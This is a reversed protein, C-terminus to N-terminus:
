ECVPTFDYSEIRILKSILFPPIEDTQAYVYASDGYAKYSFIEFMGEEYTYALTASDEGFFDFSAPYGFISDNVITDFQYCFSDTEGSTWNWNGEWDLDYFGIWVEAGEYVGEKMNSIFDNETESTISVLHGGFDRSMEDADYWSTVSTSLYYYSGGLSDVSVFHSELVPDNLLSDIEMIFPREEDCAIDNWEGAQWMEACDEGDNSNNPEEEAWNTFGVYIEEFIIETYSEASIDYWYEANDSDFVEVDEEFYGYWIREEWLGIISSSEDTSECECNEDECSVWILLPIIFLLKKM